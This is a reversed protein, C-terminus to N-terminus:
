PKNKYIIEKLNRGLHDFTPGFLHTFLWFSVIFIILSYIHKKSIVINM